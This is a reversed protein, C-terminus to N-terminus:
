ADFELLVKERLILTGSCAGMANVVGLMGGLHVLPPHPNSYTRRCLELLVKVHEVELSNLRSNLVIPLLSGAGVCSAMLLNQHFSDSQEVYLLDSILNMLGSVLRDLEVDDILEVRHCFSVVTPLALCAGLPFMPLRTEGVAHKPFLIDASPIWSIILSKIYRVADHEGARYIAGLANGLGIVPGAAGWADEELLLDMADTLFDVGPSSSDDTELPFYSILKELTGDSSGGFQYIMHILTRITKRLLETEKMRYTEKESQTNAGSDVRTLLDQCSFGLGLGCAGIM